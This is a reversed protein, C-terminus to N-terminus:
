DIMPTILRGIGSIEAEVIQGAGLYRGEANGVGAPTGTAIIDGPELTVFSSIFEIIQAVSFIMEATSAQQRLQGDVTLRMELQQPDTLCDASLICPGIPCFGDHWKGHLWDFFRDRPREVRGPNPRFQRDSLDNVITYGAVHSLAQDAGVQSATKGIVVGLEIEHDIHSPSVPPLRVAEGSGRLTTSPPKWFVYPFTQQREAAQGGQEEIHKTYNGALLLLKAPNAIPPLWRCHTADLRCGDDNQGSGLPLEQLVCRLPAALEGGPLWPLPDHQGTAAEALEAQERRWLLEVLDYTQANEQLGLLYRGGSQIRAIRIM